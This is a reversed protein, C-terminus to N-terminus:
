RVAGTDAQESTCAAAANDPATASANEGGSAAATSQAEHILYGEAFLYGEAPTLVGKTVLQVGYTPADAEDRLEYREVIDGLVAYATRIGLKGLLGRNFTHLLIISESPIELKKAIAALSELLEM